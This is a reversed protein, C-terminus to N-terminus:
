EATSLLERREKTTRFSLSFFNCKASASQNQPHLINECHCVFYGGGVAFGSSQNFLNVINTPNLNSAFDAENMGSLFIGRGAVGRALQQASDSLTEEAHTITAVDASGLSSAIALSNLFYLM